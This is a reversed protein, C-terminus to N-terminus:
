VCASDLNFNAANLFYYATVHSLVIRLEFLKTQIKQYIQSEFLM